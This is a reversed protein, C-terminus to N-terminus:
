PGSQKPGSGTGGGEGSTDAPGQGEGGTGGGDEGEDGTRVVAVARGAAGVRGRLRRHHGVLPTSRLLEDLGGIRHVHGALVLLRLSAGGAVGDRGAGRHHQLGRAQLVTGEVALDLAQARRGDDGDAVNGDG